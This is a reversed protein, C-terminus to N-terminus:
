RNRRGLRYISYAAMFVIIFPSFYILGLFSWEVAFLFWIVVTNM